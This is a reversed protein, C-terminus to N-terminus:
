ATRGKGARERPVLRHVYVTVESAGEALYPAYSVYGPLRVTTEREMRKPLDVAVQFDDPAFGAPMLDQLSRVVPDNTGVAVIDAVSIRIDPLNRLARQIRQYAPLGGERDVLASSIVLHWDRGTSEPFPWFAATLPFQERDLEKLLRVSDPINPRVLISTAM